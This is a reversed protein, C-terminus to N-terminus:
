SFDGQLHINQQQSDDATTSSLLLGPFSTGRYNKSKCLTRSSKKGGSLMASIINLPMLFHLKDTNKLHRLSTHLLEKM